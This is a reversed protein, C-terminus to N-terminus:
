ALACLRVRAANENPCLPRGASALDFCAIEVSRRRWQRNTANCKGLMEAAPPLKCGQWTGFLCGTHPTPEQQSSSTLTCNVIHRTAVARSDPTASHSRETTYQRHQAHQAMLRRPRACTCMHAPARSTRACTCRAHMYAPLPACTHDHTRAKMKLDRWQAVGARKLCIAYCLHHLMKSIVPEFLPTTALDHWSVVGQCAHHMICALMHMCANHM